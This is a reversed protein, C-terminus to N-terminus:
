YYRFCCAQKAPKSTQSKKELQKTNGPCPLPKSDHVLIYNASESFFNGGMMLLM